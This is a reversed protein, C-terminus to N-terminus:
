TVRTMFIDHFKALSRGSQEFFGQNCQLLVMHKNVPLLFRLNGVAKSVDQAASLSFPLKCLLELTKSLDHLSRGDFAAFEAGLVPAAVRSLHKM